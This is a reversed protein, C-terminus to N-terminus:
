ETKIQKLYANAYMSLLKLQEDASLGDLRSHLYRSATQIETPSLPNAVVPAAATQTHAYLMEAAVPGTAFPRYGALIQQDIYQAVQKANEFGHPLVQGFHLHVRGKQGTIGKVISKIDENHPKDYRGQEALRTLERAKYQDCPDFEYSISVPVIRLSQLYSAFDISKINNLGLMSIIAPNTVDEGDKARGERQALWIHQQQTNLSFEIYESLLKAAALKQRRDTASREVIFCNNLRILDAVWPKKLLNDGVAVRVTDQQNVHLAWNVFAPDLAIDRHNSVFLCAKSLDVHDLGTVTFSETTTNIMREMYPEVLRQFERLSHVKTIQRIIYQRTVSGLFPRLVKPWKPFKFAVLSSIFEKNNFLKPLVTPLDADDFPRISDFKSPM